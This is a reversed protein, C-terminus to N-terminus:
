QSNEGIKTLQDMVFARSSWNTPALYIANQYYNEAILPKEQAQYAIALGLFFNPNSPEANILASYTQIAEPLHNIKLYSAALLAYYSTHKILPPQNSLLLAVTEKYKGESFIALGLYERIETNEPYKSLASTLLPTIINTQHNKMFLAAIKKVVPIYISSNEQESSLLALAEKSQHNLFLYVSKEYLEISPNEKQKIIQTETQIPPLEVPEVPEVPEAPEVLEAQQIEQTKVSLVEKKEQKNKDIYYDILFFSTFFFISDFLFYVVWRKFETKLFARKEKKIDVHTSSLKKSNEKNQIRDLANLVISM